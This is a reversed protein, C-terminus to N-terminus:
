RHLQSLHTLLSAVAGILFMTACFLADRLWLDAAQERYWTQMEFATPVRFTGAGRPKITRM